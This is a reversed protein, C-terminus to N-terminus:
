RNEKFVPDYQNRLIRDAKQMAAEEGLGDSIFQSKLIRFAEDRSTNLKAMVFGPKGVDLRKVAGRKLIGGLEPTLRKATKTGVPLARINRNKGSHARPKSDSNFSVRGRKHVHGKTM